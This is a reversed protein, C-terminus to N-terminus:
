CSILLQVKGTQLKLLADELNKIEKKSDRITAHLPHPTSSITVGNSFFSDQKEKTPSIATIGKDPAAAAAAAAGAAAAAAAKRKKLSLKNMGTPRKFIDDDFEDDAEM